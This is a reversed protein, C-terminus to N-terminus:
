APPGDPPPAIREQLWARAATEERFVRFHGEIKTNILEYMRSMGFNLDDPAVMATYIDHPKVQESRIRAHGTLADFSCSIHTGPAVIVLVLGPGASAPRPLPEPSAQRHQQLARDDFTGTIRVVRLPGEQTMTISM